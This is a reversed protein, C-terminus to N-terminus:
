KAMVDVYGRKTKSKKVTGGKRATGPPGLLDDISSADSLATSPRSPPGGASGVPGSFLTPPALNATPGSGSPSDTRPPTGPISPSRSLPPASYPPQLGNVSIPPASAPQRPMLSVPVPPASPTHTPKSTSTISPPGSFSRPTPGRPPPPTATPGPTTPEAKKNVWRKQEPDYYFSSEEGLKAKIPGASANSDKKGFWGGFWGSKREGLAEQKGTTTVKGKSEKEKQEREKRAIEASRAALDDDEDDDYFTNKKPKEQAPSTEGSEAEIYPASSAPPEYGPYAPPDYGSSDETSSPAHYDSQPPEYSQHSRSSDSPPGPKLSSISPQYPSSAVVDSTSIAYQSQASPALYSPYFSAQQATNGSQAPQFTPQFSSQLKIPESTGNQLTDHAGHTIDAPRRADYSSPRPEVSAGLEQSPARQMDYSLPGQPEYTKKPAYRSNEISFPPASLPPGSDRPTYAANYLDVSSPTRSLSPTGGAIRSFPGIEPLCDKGSGTSAADSEDGVVFSNFKAWMSGSVKEMSPKSIWSGSSDKPSQQLRNTLDDLISLLGAHYYPSSKTTSRIGNTIAACYNQAENCYGYDALVLAHYLKYAQLHPTPSSHGSPTLLASFELIESLLISELNGAFHIPQQIHDTGLLTFSTQPDDAGGFAPLSRVFLFCLHAAEIRGYGALLRGLALLAQEDDASRNSLVLSLTERWRDLGELANRTPGTNASTSVMQLGARASPPVLEDISEEVNGAFIEYLAALSETNGGLNKVEQRVFEQVVQKWTERNLTSSILMAHGWLRQDVAQWVAKERDGKLLVKRLTELTIPDVQDAQLKADASQSINAPPGGYQSQPGEIGTEAGPILVARVAKEVEPNGELIGDKEVLICLVKWLLLKEVHRKRVEATLGYGPGGAEREQSELGETLWGLVEKKKGKKLPGPFKALQEELPLVDKASRIQVEGPSCIMLPQAQGSSYRPVEKPFSTVIVGGFGWVFIPCGKWRQLPDAQRGDTPTVYSPSPPLRRAPARESANPYSSIFAPPTGTGHASSPRQYPDRPMTSTKPGAISAGPSQTQARRPPSFTSEATPASPQYQPAYISTDRKSPSSTIQGSLINSPPPTASTRSAGTTPTPYPHSQSKSDLHDRRVQDREFVVEEEERPVGGLNSINRATTEQSSPGGYTEQHQKQAAGKPPQAPHQAEYHALPSGIRPQHPLLTAPTPPASSNLATYKAQGQFTGSRPTPVPSYRSSSITPPPLSQTTHPPAAYPSVREPPLLQQTPLSVYSVPTPAQQPHGQEQQPTRPPPPTGVPQPTYRSQTASYRPKSVIPLEEFFSNSSPTTVKSLTGSSIVPLSGAPPQFPHNQIPPSSRPASAAATPSPFTGSSPSAHMSSSRPPPKQIQGQSAISTPFQQMSARKRPRVDIPLDYPSTYGGKSKDSFSEARPTEHIQRELPQPRQQLKSYSSPFDALGDPFSGARFPMNQETPLYSNALPPSPQPRQLQQPPHAPAYRDLHNQSSTDPPVHGASHFRYPSSTGGIAPEGRVARNTTSAAVAEDELFGIGDDDFFRSPDTTPEDDLLEDDDLAAEWRAALDDGGGGKGGQNPSGIEGTNGGAPKHATGGENAVSDLKATAQTEPSASDASLGRDSAGSINEAQSADGFPDSPSPQYLADSSGQQKSPSLPQLLPVSEEYRAEYDPPTSTNRGQSEGYNDFFDLGEDDAEGTATFAPDDGASMEPKIEPFTHGQYRGDDDGFPHTADNVRGVGEVATLAHRDLSSIPHHAPLVEPFSNTRDSEGMFQFPDTEKRQLGWAPDVFEDEEEAWTIEHSVAFSESSSRGPRQSPNNEQPSPSRSNITKSSTPVDSQAPSTPRSGTFRPLAAATPSASPSATSRHNMEAIHHERSPSLQLDRKDATTSITPTITSPSGASYDAPSDNNSSHNEGEAEPGANGMTSTGSGRTDGKMDGQTWPSDLYSIHGIGVPTM